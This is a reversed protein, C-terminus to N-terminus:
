KTLMDLEDGFKSKFSEVWATAERIQKKSVGKRGSFSELLAHIGLNGVKDYHPQSDDYLSLVPYDDKVLTAKIHKWFKEPLETSGYIVIRTPVGNM